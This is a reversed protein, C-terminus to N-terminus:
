MGHHGQSGAQCVEKCSTRWDRKWGWHDPNNKRKSFHLSPSIKAQQPNARVVYLAGILNLCIKFWLNHLFWRLMSLIERSTNSQGMDSLDGLVSFSIKKRKYFHIL